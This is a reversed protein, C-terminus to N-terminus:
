KGILLDKLQASIFTGKWTKKILECPMTVDRYNIIVPLLLVENM